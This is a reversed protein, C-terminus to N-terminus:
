TAPVWRQAAVALIFFGFFVAAVEPAVHQVALLDVLVIGALLGGVTKGIDTEGGLRTSCVVCCGCGWFQASWCRMKAIREVPNVFMALLVPAGLLLCPWFRVLGPESEVKGPLEAGGCLPM